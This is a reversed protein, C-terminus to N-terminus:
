QIIMGGDVTLNAGNIFSAQQSCLYYVADAIEEPRAARRISGYSVCKEPDDIKQYNDITKKMMPTDVWGPSVSNCRIGEGGYESAVNESMGIVAWKSSGYGIEYPYGRMGSVSGFNVIAGEKRKTMYPLVYKMMLFTGFVNVEYIKRFNDFSYDVTKSYQGCIGAANILADFHGYEEYLEALTERVREEKTIDLTCIRFSGENLGNEAAKLSMKDADLDTMIVFYDEEIFKRVIKIGIGGSAGTIICIRKDM